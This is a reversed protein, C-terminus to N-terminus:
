HASVVQVSSPLTINSQTVSSGGGNSSTSSAGGGGCASLGLVSLAFAIFLVFRRM